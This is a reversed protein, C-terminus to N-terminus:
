IPTEKKPEFFKYSKSFGESTLHLNLDPPITIHQFKGAEYQIGNNIVTLKM